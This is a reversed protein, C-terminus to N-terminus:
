EKEGGGSISQIGIMLLCNIWNPYNFIPSYCINTVM